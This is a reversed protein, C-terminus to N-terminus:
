HSGEVLSFLSLMIHFQSGRLWDSLLDVKVGKLLEECRPSISTGKVLVVKTSGGTSSSFIHITYNIIFRVLCLLIHSNQM